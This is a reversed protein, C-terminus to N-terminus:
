CNNRRTHKRSIEDGLYCKYKGKSSFSKDEDSRKTNQKIKDKEANLVALFSYKCALSFWLM